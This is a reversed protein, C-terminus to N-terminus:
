AQEEIPVDRWEGQPTIQGEREVAWWQQLVRGKTRTTPIYSPHRDYTIDAEVWMELWRFKATPTMVSGGEASRSPADLPYANGGM